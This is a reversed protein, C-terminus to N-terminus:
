QSRVDLADRLGDGLFNISLVTIVIFLGPFVPWWWNGSAFNGEATALSLGWSVSPPKIGVGLYDIAAEAVIFSAVLLTASVIVPSLANPLIHRFIIRFSSVGAAQAAAVFEQQRLSLYYSRILRATSPWSVLGFIVVILLWNGGGLYSSLLIILPLFPLTLFIDTIRMIVSDIWGGYYGAPAGLAIGILSTLLASLLGVALSVRAGYTIWMLLSHGQADSGMIYRWGSAGPYTLRPPVNTVLYNWNLFTEPSIFPALVAMLTLLVLVAAGVLAFRHRRFRRWVLRSQGYQKIPGENALSSAPPASFPYGAPGPSAAPDITNAPDIM